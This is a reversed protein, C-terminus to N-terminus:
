LTLDKSVIKQLIKEVDEKKDLIMAPFGMENLRTIWHIQLDSPKKGPAKCEVFGIHGGPMLVIRDPVGRNSPSSWKVCEGGQGRVIKVLHAEVIKELM